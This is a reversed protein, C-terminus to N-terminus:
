DGDNFIYKITGNEDTRFYKIGLKDVRDLVEQSPHHYSNDKGASFIIYKPNVAELFEESSSYKSGHHGAVLVDSKLKKGYKEVLWRELKSPLDGTILINKNKYIFKLVLSSDNSKLSNININKEPLLVEIYSDDDIKLINGAVLSIDKINQNKLGNLIENYIPTKSDKGNNFFYSNIYKKFYDPFNGVHDTDYHTAFFLDINRDFFSLENYLGKKAKLGTGSDILIKLGSNYKFLTGNGQGVDVFDVEFENQTKLFYFNFILFINIIFLLSLVSIKILNTKFM